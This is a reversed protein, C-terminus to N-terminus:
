VGSAPIQDDSSENPAYFRAVLIGLEYLLVMPVALLLQSLVDPPTVVAAV